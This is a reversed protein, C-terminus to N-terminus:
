AGIGDGEGRQAKLRLDHLTCALGAEDGASGDLCLRQRDREGPAIDGPLRLGTGTLGCREEDREILCVTTNPPM